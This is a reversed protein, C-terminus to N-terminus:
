GTAKLAEEVRLADRKQSETVKPNLELSRQFARIARAKDGADRYAGGLHMQVAYSAPYLGAALELLTAIEAAGRSRFEGALGLLGGESVDYSRSLDALPKGM